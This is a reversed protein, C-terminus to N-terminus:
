AFRPSRSTGASLLTSEERGYKLSKAEQRSIGYSNMLVEYPIARFASLRGALQTNMANENTQFAVWEFGEEGAKQVVVFDQPIVLLQGERVEDDFVLNGSNGAVQIRASGRTVFVATHANSTYHPARIANKYLVGREASLRLYSLIPLTQSNLTTIRGGRPNYVDARAPNDINQRIKLSCYTEELGNKNGRSEREQEERGYEPLVLSLKEARVITGRKDEKGQLKRILEPETNYSEALIQQDFGSLVNGRHEEQEESRGEREQSQIKVSQPNGALFFQRFKLDLQNNQNGVDIISVTVIPTDGDNYTWHTFGEQLALVDGQRFRRLKQHRDGRREGQGQGKESESRSRSGSESESEYTEACGPIVTGQIGSGQLVYVLRPANIYYPVLLGRPNIVHRLFEIGACEFEQNNTSWFETLGAESQYTHSPGRATLQQIRCQTKARLRHQQQDQLSEWLPRDFQAMCAHSLFLFLSLYVLKAM